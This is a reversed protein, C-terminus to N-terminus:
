SDTHSAHARCLRLHFLHEVGGALGVGLDACQGSTYNGHEVVVAVGIRAELLTQQRALGDEVGEMDAVVGPPDEELREVRDVGGTTPHHLVVLEDRANRADLLALESAPAEVQDVVVVPLGHQLAQDIYGNLAHHPMGAMPIAEGQHVQRSTCVLGLLKGAHVADDFFLEYFDGVRYFLLGKPHLRKTEVYHTMMPSLGTTDPLGPM